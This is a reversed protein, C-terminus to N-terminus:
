GRGKEAEMAYEAEALKGLYQLAADRLEEMREGSPRAADALVRQAWPFDESTSFATGFAFELAVYAPLQANEFRLARGRAMAEAITQASGEVGLAECHRPFQQRMMAEIADPLCVGMLADMQAPRIRLM